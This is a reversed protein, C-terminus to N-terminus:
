STFHNGIPQKEVEVAGRSSSSPKELCPHLRNKEKSLAGRLKNLKHEKNSQGTQL